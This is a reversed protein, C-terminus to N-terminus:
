VSCLVHLRTRRERPPDRSPASMPAPRLLMREHCDRRCACLGHRFDKPIDLPVQEIAVDTGGNDRIMNVANHIVTLTRLGLFDIKLLGMAEVDDMAYQTVVEDGKTSKYLPMMNMLPEPSIVVGAAHVSAHRTLGELRRATDILKGVSPDSQQLERLRPEEQLADDLTINLRNPVPIKARRM